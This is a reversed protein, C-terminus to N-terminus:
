AFLTRFILSEFYFIPPFASLKGLEMGYKQFPGVTAVVVTAQKVAAELSDGDFADAILIGVSSCAPDIDILKQKAAELKERSRGSRTFTILSCWAFLM